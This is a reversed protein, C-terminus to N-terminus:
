SAALAQRCQCARTPILGFRLKCECVDMYVIGLAKRKKSSGAAAAERKDGAQWTRATLENLFLEQMAILNYSTTQVM